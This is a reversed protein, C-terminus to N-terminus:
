AAREAVGRRDTSIAIELHTDVVVVDTGMEACLRRMRDAIEQFDRGEALNVQFNDILVPFIDIRDIGTDGIELRFLASQDNRLDPDVAYDDVFDGSDYLIPKGKYIEIGQFIHASHGHFIDVGADMLAHAFAVFASSPRERMNPGWHASVIVLDAGGERARQVSELLRAFKRGTTSIPVFNVGPSRATAAWEPENDTFSVVAIKRGKATLWAPREAEELNRGAGAHAIHAADLRGLMELLADEQFDLSHNNALSVCDVEAVELVRMAVPDARFHFVKPTRTWPKGTAAIVCELNVLTLDANRLLEITNGWPFLPGRRSMVENILRGLM